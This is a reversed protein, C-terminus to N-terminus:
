KIINQLSYGELISCAKSTLKVKEQVVSIYQNLETIHSKLTAVEEQLAALHENQKEIKLLLTKVITEPKM